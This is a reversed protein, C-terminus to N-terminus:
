YFKSQRFLGITIPRYNTYTSAPNVFSFIVTSTPNILFVITIKVRLSPGGFTEHLEAKDATPRRTQSEPFHTEPPKRQKPQGDFLVVSLYASVLGIKIWFVM